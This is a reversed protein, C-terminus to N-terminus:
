EIYVGLNFSLTHKDDYDFNYTYGLSCYFKDNIMYSSYLSISDIDSEKLALQTLTVSAYLSSTLSKGVGVSYTAYRDANVKFSYSYYGLLTYDGMDYNLDLSVFCNAVDEIKYGDDMALRSGFSLKTNLNAFDKYYGLSIYMDDKVDISNTLNMTYSTTSISFEWPKYIYAFYLNADLSDSEISDSVGVQLLYKSSSVYSQICGDKDVLADFPTNPCKDISDDVGDLDIDISWLLTSFFIM